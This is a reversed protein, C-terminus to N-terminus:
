PNPVAAFPGAAGQAKLLDRHFSLSSGRTSVEGIGLPLFPEVKVNRSFLSVSFTYLEVLPSTLITFLFGKQLQVNFCSLGYVLLGTVSVCYSLPVM